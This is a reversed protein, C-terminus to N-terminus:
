VTFIMERRSSLISAFLLEVSWVQNLPITSGQPAVPLKLLPLNNNNPLSVSTAFFILCIPEKCFVLVTGQKRM